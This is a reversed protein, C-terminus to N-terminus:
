LKYYKEWDKRVPPGQLVQNALDNNIFRQKDSAFNLKGGVHQAVVGLLFVQTLPGSISFPSRAKEQGKCSLVFNMFHDSNKLPFKPLAPALERYKEEPIIRLPDSHTGGLFTLEKSYIFKGNRSVKPNPGMEGPAEPINEVGDYWWVKVPPMAGRKAFEFRITSAQPFIWENPGERKEAEITHPMGLELFQHCTDLIHPGWDGFAGNGYNFWSRWNGPHLKENFPKGPRAMHWLDWDMTAPVPQEEYGTINWGHWRRPSNMFMVVRDVDQIIGAKQWAKFQFYNAGSHGQNGMQTVLGTKKEMAMLLECEEFTHALPKELYVHKGRSLAYMALPFHSHDPTAIAVADFHDGEKDFLQRFDQYAPPRPFKQRMEASHDSGIDIDCLAVTNVLGTAHFSEMVNRGRGGIGIYAMNLKESPAVGTPKTEKSSAVSLNPLFLISSAAASGALFSRRNFQKSKKSM